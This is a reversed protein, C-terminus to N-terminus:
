NEDMKIFDEERDLSFLSNPWKGTEAEQPFGAKKLRPAETL